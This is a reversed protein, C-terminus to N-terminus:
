LGFGAGSDLDITLVEDLPAKSRGLGDTGEFYKKAASEFVAYLTHDQYSIGEMCPPLEITVSPNGTSRSLETLDSYCKLYSSNRRGYSTSFLVRGEGTIAIGQVLPPISYSTGEKLEGDEWSYSRMESRFLLATDAVFLQGGYFTICSPNLSLPYAEVEESIDLFRGSASRGVARIYSFPIRQLTNEDSHCIWVNEGDYAVGGLHSGKKMGLTALYDGSEHDFLFLCGPADKKENYSTVLFFEEALCLGQPCIEDSPIREEALDAERTDPMGPIDLDKRFAYSIESLPIREDGDGFRRCQYDYSRVQEECDISDSFAPTKAYVPHVLFFFMWVTLVSFALKKM